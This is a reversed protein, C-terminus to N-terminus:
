AGIGADEAGQQLATQYTDVDKDVIFSVTADFIAQRFQPSVAAGHAISPVSPVAALSDISWTFYGSFKSKDIDTRAPICGKLPSFAEQASTSGVTRLWNAANVPHPAGKPLTFGDVVTVFASESQPHAVWGAIDTVNKTVFEGYAWDGMSTFAAKGQILVDVAGDWTLAAHDPNVYDLAKAFTEIASKVEDSDWGTTGDFLGVYADPGLTGLLTNEFFQPAAFTDKDGLALAPIGATKLQDAAQFFQDFTMSDGVEIGNDALVQKNYFFVNGRHIGVPVLYKNGDKTVQDILGQPYATNWGQEDFLDNVPETYGPDVYLSFLEQGPHSQWSDPAQGGSLRTQLAAQANSGAGGAVAANVIEVNPSTAAFAKFLQDLGAAEGGSTWWSFIELQAEADPMPTAQAFASGGRLMPTAALAAAGAVFARRNVRTTRLDRSM